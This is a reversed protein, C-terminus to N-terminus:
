AAGAPVKTLVDRCAEACERCAEACIRCHEHKSAHRDCEEACGICATALSDLQARVLDMDPEGLRSMVRMTAACIDACDLDTRICHRMDQVQDENLCADACTTCAQECDLCAEICRAIGDTERKSEAPHNELMQKARGM